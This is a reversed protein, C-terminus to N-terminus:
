NIKVIGGAIKVMGSGNVECMAASAAIKADGTIDIEASKLTIKAPEIKISSAGVKLEISLAAEMEVKGAAVKITLNGTSVTLTDNGTSITAERNGTTVTLKDDTKVTVERNGTDVKHVDNGKTVTTERNGESVLLTENGKSITVLRNGKSVTVTEDGEKVTETRNKWVEITQSGDESESNGIVTKQNNHIEVTQDGKDKKIFGVKLTDNNEVVRDFNKEAHFYVQEEGKKDEFRLENFNEATGEKSSRSKIGSQTANDPLTYPPMEDNNYVRGTIIPRDPDGELFEVIVEQGMRPIHIAGWTKGAWVQAVRIWCSSNENKKGERDWFFQVKVRGYKDTWIEEGEKGVVVATQPGAVIPKPTTRRTRFSQTAEITELKVDFRNQSDASFQEVEGSEIEYDAAVILYEANESSRPFDVLKFKKGVAADYSTGVGTGRLHQAQLEEIRAKVYVNGDATELYEGPYDYAEYSALAHQRTVQSRVELTAKPKEFDYDQNVYTATQVEQYRIWEHLHDQGIRGDGGGRYPLEGEGGILAHASPADALVLKHLGNEHEFYYYIGEQEMLRSVFDFDSERYQVCYDWLRYTGSLSRKFDTFGNKDRFVKEIIDPVKMQQFIRCDSTRTLFWLWPRLTVRYVQYRGRNGAYAFRSVLGNFYRDGTGGPKTVKVTVATGLMKEAAIDAKECFMELDFQFPRGLEERVKMRWFFFTVGSVATTIEHVSM